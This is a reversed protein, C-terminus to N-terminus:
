NDNTPILEPTEFINGIIEIESQLRIGNEKGYHSWLNFGVGEFADVRQIGYTVIIKGYDYLIIDGEYIEKGNKDKLGTYQQLKVETADFVAEWTPKDWSEGYNEYITGDLGILHREDNYILLKEGLQGTYCIRFKIERDM